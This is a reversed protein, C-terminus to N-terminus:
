RSSHDQPLGLAAPRALGWARYRECADVQSAIARELRARALARGCEIMAVLPHASPYVTRAEERAAAFGESASSDDGAALAAVALWTHVDTRRPSAEPLNALLSAGTARAQAIGQEVRGAEILMSSQMGRLFIRDAESVHPGGAAIASDILAAGDAPAGRAARLLALSRLGVPLAAHASDRRLAVSELLLREGQDLDGQSAVAIGLLELTSARAGPDRTVTEEDHLRRLLEEAEAYRGLSNLTAAINRGVVFRNPHGEPVLRSLVALSREFLPLAEVFRGAAFRASGEANLSAAEGMSNGTGVRDWVARARALIERRREPDTEVTARDNLAVMLDKHWPGLVAEHRAVSSDLMPRAADSGETALVAMALEHYLGALEEDPVGADAGTSDWVQQLLARARRTEGRAMRLKGIARAFPVQREPFAALGAVQREAEDVLAAVRLTDGGPVLIPNSKEFVSTLVKVVDQAAAREREARDRERAIRRAQITSTVAFGIVLLAVLGGTAVAARNRGVFKAVRYRVTDRQARVPKGLLFRDVDEALEGASRYRREPEKRLAMQVIRDLDGRLRRPPIRGRAMSSPAPAPHTLIEEALEGTTRGAASFPRCGALLEFLLIGLGYVDTAMGIAEGRLQEPSAHEPTLLRLDPRTVALSEDAPDRDLLKAIGFDLLRPVGDDQVLINSPKLDRHVVLQGHAFQVAEAVRKFLTLGARLDLGEGDCYETIPVGEVLQLVLFPRGDSATGGDLIPVIDPHTLRALVQRETRFRRLTEATLFGPRLLKLAVTQRYAGGVREARYVEGMGGEGILAEIRYSGVETGPPLSAPLAGAPGQLLRREIGLGEEREHAALMSEVERQLEPEGSAARALWAEREQLPLDLAQSFLAVVRSWSAQDM